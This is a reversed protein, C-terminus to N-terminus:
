DLICKSKNEKLIKYKIYSIIHYAYMILKRKNNKKREIKVEIVM